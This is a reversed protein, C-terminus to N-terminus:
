PRSRVRILDLVDAIRVPEPEDVTVDFHQQINRRIEAVREDGGFDSISSEDSIFVPDSPRFGLAKVIFESLLEPDANVRASSAFEIPLGTGPRPMEMGEARRRSAITRLNEELAARASERTPGLGVPGPWNLVRACWRSDDPVGGQERIQMPYHEPRWESRLFSALWSTEVRLRSLVTSMLGNM